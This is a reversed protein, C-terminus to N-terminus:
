NATAQLPGIVEEGFAALTEPPAFDCFWTYVREIGQEALRGYHEVLEPGTGIVPRSFGFRRKALATIEDRDGGRPILAVMQQISVRADGVNARLEEIKHIQGIHVNWWDAFDRVLALTKPGVGGIVIPIHGLPRPEQRAQDFHHYTGDYDVTEGAWLARMVELTERLRDVRARPETSGAGFTALEEPVSGWGIGLEFRGGSAHDISVAQRALVAPHRFADCLVLSGVRLRETHAAVWTTTVIAEYMPQEAAM